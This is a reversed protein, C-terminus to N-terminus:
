KEEGKSAISKPSIACESKWVRPGRRLVCCRLVALLFQWADLQDYTFFALAAFPLAAAMSVWSTLQPSLFDGAAFCVAVAAAVAAGSWITQRLSLGM